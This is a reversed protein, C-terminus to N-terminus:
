IMDLFKFVSLNRIVEEATRKSKRIIDKLSKRLDDAITTIRLLKLNAMLRIVGEPYTMTAYDRIQNTLAFDMLTWNGIFENQSVMIYFDNEKDDRPLIQVKLGTFKGSSYTKTRRNWEKWGRTTIYTTRNGVNQLENAMNYFRHGDGFMYSQTYRHNGAAISIHILEGNDRKIKLDRVPCPDWLHAIDKFLRQEVKGINGPFSDIWQDYIRNKRIKGRGCVDEELTINVNGNSPNALFNLYGM